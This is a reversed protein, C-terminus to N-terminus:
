PMELLVRVDWPGLRLEAGAAHDADALVDRVAAPAPRRRDLHRGGAHRGM